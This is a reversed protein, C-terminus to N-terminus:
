KILKYRIIKNDLIIRITPLSGNKKEDYQLYMFSFKSVALGIVGIGL